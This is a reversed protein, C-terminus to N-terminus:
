TNEGRFDAQYTCSKSNDIVIPVSEKRTVVGSTHTGSKPLPSCPNGSSVPAPLSTIFIRCDNGPRDYHERVTCLPYQFLLFLFYFPTSRCM